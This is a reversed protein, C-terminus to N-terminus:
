CTQSLSNLFISVADQTLAAFAATISVPLINAVFWFVYSMLTFTEMDEYKAIQYLILCAIPINTSFWNAFFYSFDKDFLAVTKSINLHLTRQRYLCKLSDQTDQKNTIANGFAQCSLEFM